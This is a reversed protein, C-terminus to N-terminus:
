RAIRSPYNKTVNAVIILFCFKNILCALYRILLDNKKAFRVDKEVHVGYLILM